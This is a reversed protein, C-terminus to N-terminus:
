QRRRMRSFVVAMGSLMLWGVAPVPVATVNITANNFIVGGPVDSFGSLLSNLSLEATGPGLGLLNVTITGLTEATTIGGFEGIQILYDTGPDANDVGHSTFFPDLSDFFPSPTFSVFEISGGFALNMAGGTTGGPVDTFDVMMELTATGDSLFVDQNAPTLSVSAAHSGSAILCLGLIGLFKKM